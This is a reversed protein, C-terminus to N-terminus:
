KEFPHRTAFPSKIDPFLEPVCIIFPICHKSVATGRKDRLVKICKAMRSPVLEKIFSAAVRTDIPPDGPSLRNVL